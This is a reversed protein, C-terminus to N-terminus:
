QQLKDFLVLKTISKEFMTKNKMTGKPKLIRLQKMKQKIRRTLVIKYLDNKM